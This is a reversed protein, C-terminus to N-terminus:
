FSIRATNLIEGATYKCIILFYKHPRTSKISKIQNDFLWNHQALHAKFVFRLVAVSINNLKFCVLCCSRAQLYRPLNQM